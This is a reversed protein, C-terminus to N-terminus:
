DLVRKVGYGLAALALGGAAIRGLSPTMWHPEEHGARSFHTVIARNFRSLDRQTRSTVWNGDIVVAQDVWDGGANEVDDRIGPYSTLRRGKVLGASVLVWPAHCIAAIPKGAEDFWRVFDLIRSSQRLTDPSKLGGPILLADYEDPDANFITRDVAIEDGPESKHVGRVTGRHVSVIETEAGNDRLAKIPGELEAQEFGDAAIIAVRMGDLQGAMTAEETQRSGSM